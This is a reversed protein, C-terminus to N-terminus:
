DDDDILIPTSNEIVDIVDFSIVEIELDKYDKKM